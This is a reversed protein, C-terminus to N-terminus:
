YTVSGKVEDLRQHTPCLKRGPISNSRCNSEERVDGIQFTVKGTCPLIAALIELEIAGLEDAVAHLRNIVEEREEHLAVRRLTAARAGIRELIDHVEEAQTM